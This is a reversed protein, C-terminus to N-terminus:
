SIIFDIEIAWYGIGEPTIEAAEAANVITAPKIQQAKLINRMNKDAPTNAKVLTGPKLEGTLPLGNKETLDFLGEIDGYLQVTMDFISQGPEALDSDYPMAIATPIKITGSAITISEDCDVMAGPALEGTVGVGNLEAVDFLAEMSGYKSVVVDFLNEGPAVILTNM